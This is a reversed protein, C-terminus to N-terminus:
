GTNRSKTSTPPPWLWTPTNRLNAMFGSGPKRMVTIQVSM